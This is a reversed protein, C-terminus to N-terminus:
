KVYYLSQLYLNNLARIEPWWFIEPKGLIDPKRLIEPWGHLSIIPKGLIKDPWRFIEPSGLIEPSSLIEPKGSSKPDGTCANHTKWPNSRTVWLNRTVRPNRTERPNRTVRPNRTERPNRTVWPNRTVRPNIGPWRLIEPSGILNTESRELINREPRGLVSSIQNPDGWRHTDRSSTKEQNELSISLGVIMDGSPTSSLQM